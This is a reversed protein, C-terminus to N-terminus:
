VHWIGRAHRHMVRMPTIRSSLFGVLRVRGSSRSIVQRAVMLLLRSRYTYMRTGNRNWGDTSM